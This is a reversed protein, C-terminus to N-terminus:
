FKHLHRQLNVRGDEIEIEGMKLLEIKKKVGGPCSYGGIEGNSKVVRFCHIKVPDKNTRMFVAVARPHTGAARALEAYTIVKNKPVEKLLSYVLERKGNAKAKSVGMM